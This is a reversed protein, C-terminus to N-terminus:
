DFPEILRWKRVVSEETAPDPGIEYVLDGEAHSWSLSPMLGAFLREGDSAYVDVPVRADEQEAPMYAYPFVYLHGHGDVLLTALAPQREPWNIESEVADEYRRRVVEMIEDRQEEPLGTPTAAVRLAWRASGDADLALVQYEDRMSWYVAGDRSAAAVPYLAPMVSFFSSRSGRQITAINAYSTEGLTRLREGELSYVSVTWDLLEPTEARTTQAVLEGRLTGDTPRMNDLRQLPHDAIHNGEMDWHSLRSNATDGIVVIDEAAVVAVPSQFEGPGQGQRGLSRVFTGEADFVTVGSAQNDVVYIQGSRDVVVDIPRGFAYRPDVEGRDGIVLELATEILRGEREARPVEAYGVVRVGEEVPITWDAFELSESCSVTAGCLLALGLALNSDRRRAGGVAGSVLLHSSNAM